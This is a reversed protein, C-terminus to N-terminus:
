GENAHNIFQLNLFAAAKALSHWNGQLYTSVQENHDFTVVFIEAFKEKNKGLEDILESIDKQEQKVDRLM